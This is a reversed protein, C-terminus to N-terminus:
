QCLIFRKSSGKILGYYKVWLTITIPNQNLWTTEIEVRLEQNNNILQYYYGTIARCQKNFLEYDDQCQYCDNQASSYCRKCNDPCNGSLYEGKIPEVKTVYKGSDYEGYDFNSSSSFLLTNDKSKYITSIRLNNNFDLNINSYTDHFINLDNDITNLLYQVLISNPNYNFKNRINGYVMHVSSYRLDYIVIQKYFAAGWSIYVGEGLPECLYKGTCFLLNDLIYNNINDSEIDVTLAPELMNYNIYINIKFDDPRFEFIVHNWEYLSLPLEKTSIVDFYNTDKYYFIDNVDQTIAHPHAYFLYREQIDTKSCFENILDVKFSVEIIYGTKLKEKITDFKAYVPYFNYCRNFYIASNVQSQPSLCKFGVRKYGNSCNMMENYDYPLNYHHYADLEYNCMGSITGDLTLLAGPGRNYGNPCTQECTIDSIDSQFSLFYSTKCELPQNNHNTKNVVTDSNAENNIPYLKIGGKSKYKTGTIKAEIISDDDFIHNIKKFFKIKVTDDIVEFNFFDVVLINWRIYNSITDSKEFLSDSTDYYQSLYENFLYFNRIYVECGENLKANQIYAHYYEDYENFLFKFPYDVLGLIKM